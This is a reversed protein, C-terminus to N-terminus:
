NWDCGNLDVIFIGGFEVCCPESMDWFQSKAKHWVIDDFINGSALIIKSEM